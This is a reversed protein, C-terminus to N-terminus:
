FRLHMCLLTVVNVQFCPTIYFLLYYLCFAQDRWPDSFFLFVWVSFWMCSICFPFASSGNSKAWKEQSGQAMVLLQHLLFSVSVSSVWVWWYWLWMLVVDQLQSPGELGNGFSELNPCNGIYQKNKMGLICWTVEACRIYHNFWVFGRGKM